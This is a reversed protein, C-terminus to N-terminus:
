FPLDDNEAPNSLGSAELVSAPPTKDESTADEDKFPTSASAFAYRLMPYENNYIKDGVEKRVIVADVICNCSTGILSNTDLSGALKKNLFQEMMLRLRPLAKESLYFRGGNATKFDANFRESHFTPEIYNTGNASVGDEIGIITLVQAGKQVRNAIPKQEQEPINDFNVEAM